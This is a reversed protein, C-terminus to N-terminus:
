VQSSVCSPFYLHVVNSVGSLSSINYSILLMMLWDLKLLSCQSNRRTVEDWNRQRNGPLFFFHFRPFQHIHFLIRPAELKEPHDLYSFRQTSACGIIRPLMKHVSRRTSSMVFHTPTKHKGWVTPLLFSPILLPTFCGVMNKYLKQSITIRHLRTKADQLISLYSLCWLILNM